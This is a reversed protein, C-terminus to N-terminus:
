LHKFYYADTFRDCALKLDKSGRTDFLHEM